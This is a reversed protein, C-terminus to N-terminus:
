WLPQPHVVSLLRSIVCDQCDGVVISVVHDIIDVTQSVNGYCGNYYHTLLRVRSGEALLVCLIYHRRVEAAPNNWYAYEIIMRLLHFPLECTKEMHLAVISEARTAAFFANSCEPCPSNIHNIFSSRQCWHCKYAMFRTGWSGTIPWSAREMTVM